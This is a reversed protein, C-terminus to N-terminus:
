NPSNRTRIVRFIRVKREASRRRQDRKYATNIAQYARRRYYDEDMDAPECLLRLWAEQIYDEADELSWAHRRAQQQIYRGLCINEDRLRVWDEGTV